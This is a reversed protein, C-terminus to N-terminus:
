DCASDQRHHKFDSGSLSALGSKVTKKSHANRTNDTKKNRYDYRSYGLENEVEAELMEEILQGM